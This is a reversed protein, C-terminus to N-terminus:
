RWAFEGYLEKAAREYAASAEAATAHLGLWRHVGDKIIGAGWKRSAAHWYVGRYGSRNARSPPKNAENQSRTALRLNPWRDNSRNLDRHEVEYGPPPWEGTVWLWIVRAARYKQGRFGLVVYGNSDAREIVKGAPATAVNGEIAWTLRGTDSDYSFARRADEYTMLNQRRSM